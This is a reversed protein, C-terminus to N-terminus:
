SARSALREHDLHLQLHIILTKIDALVATMDSKQIEEGRHFASSIDECKQSLREAYVRSAVGHLQHIMSQIASENEKSEHIQDLHILIQDRINQTETLTDKIIETAFNIPVGAEQVMKEFHFVEEPNSLKNFILDRKFGNQDHDLHGFSLALGLTEMLREVSIPKMLFDFAGQQWSFAIEKSGSFKSAVILPVRPDKLNLVKLLDIVTGDPLWYDSIIVDVKHDSLVSLTENLNKCLLVEHYDNLHHSLIKLSIPDDDVILIKAM